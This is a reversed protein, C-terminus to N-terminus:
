RLLDAPLMPIQICRFLIKDMKQPQKVRQYPLKHDDYMCAGMQQLRCSQAHLNRSMNPWSIEAPEAYFLAVDMVRRHFSLISKVDDANLYSSATNIMLEVSKVVGIPSIHATPPSTRPGVHLRDSSQRSPGSRPHDVLLGFELSAATPRNVAALLLYLLYLSLHSCRM